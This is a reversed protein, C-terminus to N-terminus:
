AGVLLANIKFLLMFRVIEPPVPPGVGVAHSLLLNEQLKALQDAPIRVNCLKGFGTNVGYITQGSAILQEIKARSARVREWAAPSIEVQIKRGLAGQLLNLNLSARDLRIRLPQTESM